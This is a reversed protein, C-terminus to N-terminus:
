INHLCLHRERKYLHVTKVFQLSSQGVSNVHIYISILYSNFQLIFVSKAVRGPRRRCKTGTDVDATLCLVPSLPLHKLFAIQMLPCASLRDFSGSWERM